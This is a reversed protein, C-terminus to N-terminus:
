LVELVKGILLCVRDGDAAQPGPELNLLLPFVMPSRHIRMEKGYCPLYVNRTLLQEVLSSFGTAESAVFLLAQAGLAQLRDTQGHRDM